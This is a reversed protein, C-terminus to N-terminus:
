IVNEWPPSQPEFHFRFHLHRCAQHYILSEGVYVCVCDSDLKQYSVMPLRAMLGSRWLVLVNVQPTLRKETDLVFCSRVQTQNDPLQVPQGAHTWKLWPVKITGLIQTSTELPTLCICCSYCVNYQVKLSLISRTSESQVSLTTGIINLVTIGKQNWQLWPEHEATWVAVTKSQLSIITLHLIYKLIVTSIWIHYLYEMICGAIIFLNWSTILVNRKSNNEM